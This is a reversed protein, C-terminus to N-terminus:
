PRTTSSEGIMRVFHDADRVAQGDLHTVLDGVYLDAKEAPSDPGLSEILAGGPRALGAERLQRAPPTTVRVGLFGYVIEEGAKLAEIKALLTDTIPLAFGIGNTQKQPLIVATNVGIVNGHLDFLPGGSNGPNIEATTQILNTYLRDEKNALKPLSRDTASVGGVSMCMEGATALGYPNGLAITCQGRKVPTRSFRVAP